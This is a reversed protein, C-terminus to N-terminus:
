LGIADEIYKVTAKAGDKAIRAELTVLYKEWQEVTMDSVSELGPFMIQAFLRMKDQIAVGEQPALGAPELHDSVIKFHRQKYPKVQELTLRPKAAKPPETVPAVTPTVVTSSAQPATTIASIPPQAMQVATKALQEPSAEFATQMGARAEPTQMKELIPPESPGLDVVKSKNKSGPQRGRRKKPQDALAPVLDSGNGIAGQEQKPTAPEASNLQAIAEARLREQHQEFTETDKEPITTGKETVDKGPTNVPQITPQPAPASVSTNQLVVPANPNVESEDLVGAGVFQLTVRRCARTQGGMIADNLEKGTLGEIWNAGSSMEKRGTSDVAAVTWVVSGGIHDMKLDTISIGRNNRILESAGRKAYPVLHRPGANDDIYVLMVLNLNSPIGMHECLNRVYDQRQEETLPELDYIPIFKSM